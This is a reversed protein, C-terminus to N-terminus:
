TLGGERRQLLGVQENEDECLDLVADVAQDQLDEFETFDRTISRAYYASTTPSKCAPLTLLHEFYRRRKNNARVVFSPCCSVDTSNFSRTSLAQAKKLATPGDM